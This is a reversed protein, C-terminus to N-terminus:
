LKLRHGHYLWWQLRHSPVYPFRDQPIKYLGALVASGALGSQDLAPNTRAVRPVVPNTRALALGTSEWSPRARAPGTQAPWAPGREFGTAIGTLDRVKGLLALIPSDPSAREFRPQSVWVRHLVCKLGFAVRELVSNSGFNM